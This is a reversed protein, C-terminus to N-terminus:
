SLESFGDVSFDELKDFEHSSDDMLYPTVQGEEKQQDEM